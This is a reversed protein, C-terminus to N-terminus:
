DTRELECTESLLEGTYQSCVAEILNSQQTEFSACDWFNRISKGNVHIVPLGQMAYTM